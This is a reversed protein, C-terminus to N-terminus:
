FGPLLQLVIRSVIRSFSVFCFLLPVMGVAHPTFIYLEWLDTLFRLKILLVLSREAVM